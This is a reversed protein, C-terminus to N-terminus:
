RNGPTEHLLLLSKPVFMLLAVRKNAKYNFNNHELKQPRLFRNDGDLLKM